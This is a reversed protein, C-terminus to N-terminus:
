YGVLFPNFGGRRYRGQRMLLDLALTAVDDAIPEIGPDRHEHLIKVYSGCADCTEAKAIGPGGDIEQYAIGKTSACLTCKVRVYNWLTGCLACACFRTGHAGPWGVVMSVAPPGGCAPCAGDGVPVLRAADLRSALRAFHLNLACAVYVHEALTEIEAADDLVNRVIGGLAAADAAAVRDLAAAAAAPKDVSAFASFLRGATSLFVPDAAFRNRDLPPMAFEGARALAGADPMEPAPLDPEVAQQAAALGALFRLYPALGDAEALQALRAARRSFLTAPDPLRVFPAAAVDGIATPDPVPSDSRM